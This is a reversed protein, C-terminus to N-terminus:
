AQDTMTGSATGSSETWTVGPHNELFPVLALRPGIGIL